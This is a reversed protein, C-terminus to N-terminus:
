SQAGVIVRFKKYMKLGDQLSTFNFGRNRNEMSVRFIDEWHRYLVGIAKWFSFGPQYIHAPEAGCGNLELIKIKGAYLNELSAVRLDFRGFYFGAIQKSIKDFTASLESTILNSGDLFKTGLCHNGISVLEIQEGQAPVSDLRDHFKVKLKEWQLKARDKSLILDKLPTLGDGTVYLMEKAVISTVTGDQESPFRRYYIGFELALDICEQIIFDTKIKLLYNVIDGEDSIREVMWGREGLDPKFIVPFTLGLLRIKNQVAQVTTPLTVLDAKAILESPIKNLIEYKSEGFMGGMPIGPNSASFFVFSRARLSLLFFHFFSPFQVIGFPWYEWHLLKIFIKSKTITTLFNKSM